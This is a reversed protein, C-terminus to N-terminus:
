EEVTYIFDDVTQKQLDFNVAHLYKEYWDVQLINM